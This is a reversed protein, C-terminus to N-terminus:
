HGPGAETIRLNKDQYYKLSSQVTRCAVHGHYKESTLRLEKSEIWSAVVRLQMVKRLAVGANIAMELLLIDDLVCIEADLSWSRGFLPSLTFFSKHDDISSLTALPFRRGSFFM